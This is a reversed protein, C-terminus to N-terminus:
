AALKIPFKRLTVYRTYGHFYLWSSPPRFRESNLIYRMRNTKNWNIRCAPQFILGCHTNSCHALWEHENASGQFQVRYTCLRLLSREVYEMLAHLANM